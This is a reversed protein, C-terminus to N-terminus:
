CTTDPKPTSRATALIQENSKNGGWGHVLLVARSSNKRPVWWGALRIGDTSEVEVDSYDLGMSSPTAAMPENDPATFRTAVFLGVGFYVLTLIVVTVLGWVVM